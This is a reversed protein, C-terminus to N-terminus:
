RGVKVRMGLVLADGLRPDGGPNIVYQLDPQISLWPTLAALYTAEVILEHRDGAVDAGFGVRRHRDGFRAAALSVGIRDDARGAITGAQVLGGGLYHTVANFRADAVGIRLWGSPGRPADDHAGALRHELSAYGGKNGQARGFPETTLRAFSASYVWGGLVMRTRGAVHDIEGAILAGDRASLGVATRRPRAPDGPTADLIALRAHWADGLDIAGRVALSTVPFISPGNEGSQSYDPGIGHSANLFLTATRTTDFEANLNYLGAKISAAGIDQEIWAEFLRTARVGTEINSVTQFDGVLDGSFATGNNHLAYVFLRAGRWGVLRDADVAVQLDLNDLYRTGRAIGGRVNALLEATYVASLTVPGGARENASLPQGSPREDQAAAAGPVLLAAAAALACAHGSVM